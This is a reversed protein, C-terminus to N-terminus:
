EFLDVVKIGKVVYDKVLFSLEVFVIVEEEVKFM